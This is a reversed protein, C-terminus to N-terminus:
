KLLTKILVKNTNCHVVTVSAAIIPPTRFHLGCPGWFSSHTCWLLMRLWWWLLLAVVASVKTPDKDKCLVDHGLMSNCTEKLDLYSIDTLCTQTDSDWKNRDGGVAPAMCEDPTAASANANTATPRFANYQNIPAWYRKRISEDDSPAGLCAPAYLCKQFMQERVKITKKADTVEAGDTAANAM